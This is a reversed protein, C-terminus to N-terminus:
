IYSDEEKSKRVLGKKEDVIEYYGCIEKLFEFDGTVKLYSYITSIVWVGQDIFPRLDMAPASGESRPLTYQRPCRGDIFVFNLAEIIKTRAAESKWFILGELSQFIDRIGILTGAWAHVYGKVLSCFEVQKKLHEIFPNFVEDKVKESYSGKVKCYLQERSKKETEEM